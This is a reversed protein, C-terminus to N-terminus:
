FIIHQSLFYDRVYESGQFPSTEYKVQGANRFPIEVLGNLLM